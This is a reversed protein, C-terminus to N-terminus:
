DCGHRRESLNHHVVRCRRLPFSFQWISKERHFHLRHENRIFTDTIQDLQSRQKFLMGKPGKWVQRHQEIWEQLAAENVTFV